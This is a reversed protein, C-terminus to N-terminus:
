PGGDQADDPADEQGFMRCTQEEAARQLDREKEEPTRPDESILVLRTHPSLPIQTKRVGFQAIERQSFLPQQKFQQRERDLQRQRRTRTDDLEGTFMNYQRPSADPPEGGSFADSSPILTEKM